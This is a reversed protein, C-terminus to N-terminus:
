QTDLLYLILMTCDAGHLNALGAPHDRGLQVDCHADTSGDLMHSAHLVAFDNHSDPIVRFRGYELHHTLLCRWDCVRICLAAAMQWAGTFASSM